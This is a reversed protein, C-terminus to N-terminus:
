KLGRERLYENTAKISDETTKKLYALSDKTSKDLRAQTEKIIAVTKANETRIVEGRAIEADLEAQEKDVRADHDNRGGGQGRFRLNPLMPNLGLAAINAFNITNLNRRGSGFISEPLEHKTSM